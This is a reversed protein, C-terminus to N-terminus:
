ALLMTQCAHRSFSVPVMRWSHRGLKSQASTFDQARAWLSNGPSPSREMDELQLLNMNVVIFLEVQSTNKALRYHEVVEKPLKNKRECAFCDLVIRLRKFQQVLHMAYHHKPVIEDTGWAKKFASFHVAMLSQLKDAEVDPIESYLKLRQLQEVVDALASFSAVEDFLV